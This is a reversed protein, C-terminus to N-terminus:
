YAGNSKFWKRYVEIEQEDMYDGSYGPNEYIFDLIEDCFKEREEYHLEDIVHEDQWECYTSEELNSPDSDLIQTWGNDDTLFYTGDNLEGYFLWIDEGMYAAYASKIKKM